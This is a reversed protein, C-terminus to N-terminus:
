FAKHLLAHRKYCFHASSIALLLADVSKEVLLACQNWGTIGTVGPWQGWGWIMDLKDFPRPVGNLFEKCNEQLVTKTKVCPRRRTVRLVMLKSLILIVRPRPQHGLSRLFNPHNEHMHLVNPSSHLHGKTPLKTQESRSCSVHGKACPMKIVKRVMRCIKEHQLFIAIFHGM